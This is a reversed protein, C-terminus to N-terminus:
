AALERAWQAATLVPVICSGGYGPIEPLVSSDPAEAFVDGPLVVRKRMQPTLPIRVTEGDRLTVTVVGEKFTVM